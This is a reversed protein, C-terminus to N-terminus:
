NSLDDQEWKERKLLKNWDADVKDQIHELINENGPKFLHSFRGQLKLYDVVPKKVNPRFTLKFHGNEIEYLPWICTEVGLRAIIQSDAAESKWGLPCPALVNIFAPGDSDLAKKVKRTFDMYYGPSATAVYP